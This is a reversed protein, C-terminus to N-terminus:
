FRYRPYGLTQYDKGAGVGTRPQYWTNDVGWFFRM